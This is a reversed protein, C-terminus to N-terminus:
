RGVGTVLPKMYDYARRAINDPEVARRDFGIEMALYGDYGVDRLAAVLGAYDVRGDGPAGRNVDALHVHALDTGVKHCGVLFDATICAFHADIAQECQAFGRAVRDLGETGTCHM